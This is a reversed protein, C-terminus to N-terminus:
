RVTHTVVPSTSAAHVSSGSYQAVIARTGVPLTAIQLTATAANKTAVLAATGVPIGDAFFQVTGSPSAAKGSPKVTATLTVVQGEVSPNPASSLATTTATQTGVTHLLAVVTSSPAFISDGAYTATIAHVGASLSSTSLTATTAKKTAVLTAQGLVTGGDFFTVTGTPQGTGSAPSVTATFQVTQGPASPNPSSSLTISTARSAAQISVAVAPSTSPAFSMDGQFVATLQHIGTSLSTVTLAATGASTLTGAGLLTAGDFFHVLGGGAGVGSIDATVSATL